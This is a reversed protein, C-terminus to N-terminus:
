DWLVPHGTSWPTTRHIVLHINDSAYDRGEQSSGPDTPAQEETGPRAPVPDPDAPPGLRSGKAWPQTCLM